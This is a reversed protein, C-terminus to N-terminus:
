LQYEPRTFALSTFGSRYGWVYRLSPINFVFSAVVQKSFPCGDLNLKRLRPCGESLKVLGADSDGLLQLSLSRLNAGYKGIYELGMDTLGRRCHWLSIDLREIKNCGMLMAELCELKTCGKALAILGLHTVVGNHTLKRLIKCFKGIVQLGGDGCVDSTSLVELNPCRNFLLCKCENFDLLPLKLKRIHNLFPLVISYRTVALDELSLSRINLPFRFGVLESEEDRIDGGLHELRVVYRFAGGLKSLYCAGIKLSILSNCCNNALLTVNEADSINTKKFNFMELVTSNLALQHLWTEDKVEILYCYKLCLTRLQNCYKSVHRLGDTSFGKCKSIKLSRLDKSRTRVLTELDEDHVVLRRIHLEKLCRFELALQEIWPTILMDNYYTDNLDALPPGKLSLTEKNNGWMPILRSVQLHYAYGQMQLSEPKRVM